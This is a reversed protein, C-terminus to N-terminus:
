AYSISLVTRPQTRTQRITVAALFGDQDADWNLWPASARKCPSYQIFYYHKCIKYTKSIIQNLLSNNNVFNYAQRVFFRYQWNCKAKQWHMGNLALQWTRRRHSESEITGACQSLSLRRRQVQYDPKESRALVRELEAHRGQSPVPRRGDRPPSAAILQTQWTLCAHSESPRMTMAVLSSCLWPEGRICM